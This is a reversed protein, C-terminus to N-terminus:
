PQPLHPVQGPLPRSATLTLPFGSAVTNRHRTNYLSVVAPPPPHYVCVAFLHCQSQGPAAFKTSSCCPSFIFVAGHAPLLQTSRLVPLPVHPKHMLPRQAERLYHASSPARSVAIPQAVGPLLFFRGTRPPVSSLSHKGWTSMGLTNSLEM